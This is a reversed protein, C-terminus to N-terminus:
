TAKSPQPHYNTINWQYWKSYTTPILNGDFGKDDGYTLVDGMGISFRMEEAWNKFKLLFALTWGEKHDFAHMLASLAKEYLM